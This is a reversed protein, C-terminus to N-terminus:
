LVDMIFTTVKQFWTRITDSVQDWGKLVYDYKVDGTTLDKVSLNTFVGDYVDDYINRQSYQEQVDSVAGSGLSLFQYDLSRGLDLNNIVVKTDLALSISGDKLEISLSRSGRDNIGIVEIYEEGGNDVSLVEMEEVQKQLLAANQLIDYKKEYQIVSGSYSLLGQQEDENVSIEDLGDFERLSLELVNGTGELSHNNIYLKNYDIVIEVSNDSTASESFLLRQVGAVNGDLTVDISTNNLDLPLQIMGTSSPASTVVITDKRYEAAGKVLDWNKAETEDGVVFVPEEGTDDVIRMILHNAYWNSQPQMRTLDYASSEVTNLSYGERNFNITYNDRIYKENVASVDDDSGFQGTNSHMLAYFSPVADMHEQYIYYMSDYDSKIRALMEEYSETPLRDADRIYDMLYHNYDREIYSTITNYVNSDIHGFYNKYRDFVNIYELRYGNSGHEWFSTNMLIKMDRSSLFRNDIQEFKEAYTMMSALYNQDKLVEHALVGTDRRGDEFMLFLSQEPVLNGSVYLNSVDEQSITSYGMASLAAIHEELREQSIRTTSDSEYKQVGIYSLAIFTDETKAKKSERYSGHYLQFYTFIVLAVIILLQIVIRLKKNRNKKKVADVKM